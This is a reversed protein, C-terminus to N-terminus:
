SGSRRANIAAGKRHPRPYRERVSPLICRDQDNIKGATAVGGYPAAPGEARNLALHAELENRNSQSKTSQLTPPIRLPRSRGGGQEYGGGPPFQYETTPCWEQVRVRFSAIQARVRRTFILNLQLCSLRNPCSFLRNPWFSSSSPQGQAPSCSPILLPLNLWTITDSIINQLSRRRPPPPPPPPPPASASSPNLKRAWAKQGKTFPASAQIGGWGM